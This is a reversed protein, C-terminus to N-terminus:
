SQELPRRTLEQGGEGLFRVVTPAAREPLEVAYYLTGNTASVLTGGHIDATVEAGVALEVRVGHTGDPAQGFVFRPLGSSEFLLPAFRDAAPEGGPGGGCISTAGADILVYLCPAANDGPGGGVTLRWQTGNRSTARILETGPPPEFPPSGPPPPWEGDEPPRLEEAFALLNDPSVRFGRIGAVVGDAEQWLLVQMDLSGPQSEVADSTNFLLGQTGRVKVARSDPGFLWRNVALEDNDGTYTSILLDDPVGIGPRLRRYTAWHGSARRDSAGVVNGAFVADPVQGIRELGAPLSGFVLDGGRFTGGRAIAVLEDDSLTRSIVQVRADPHPRWWLAWGGRFTNLVGEGDGIVVEKGDSPLEGGGPAALVLVALDAKNFPDSADADGYVTIANRSRLEGRPTIDGGSDIGFGDPLYGAVLPGVKVNLPGGAEIREDGGRAVVVAVVGALALTVAGVAAGLRKGRHAAVPPSPVELMSVSRRLAEGAHRASADVDVM